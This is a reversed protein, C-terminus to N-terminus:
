QPLDIFVNDHQEVHDDDPNLLLGIERAEAEDKVRLGKMVLRMTWESALLAAFYSRIGYARVVKDDLMKSLDKSMEPSIQNTM